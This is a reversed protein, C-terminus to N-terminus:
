ILNMKSYDWRENIFIIGTDNKNKKDYFSWNEKPIKWDKGYICELLGESYKPILVEGGYFKILTFESFYKAPIATKIYQAGLYESIKIMTLFLRKRVFLPFLRFLTILISKIIMNRSIKYNEERIFGSPYAVLFLGIWYFVRSLKPAYGEQAANEHPRVANNGNKWMCNINVIAGESKVSIAANSSYFYASYGLSNLEDVIMKFKKHIDSEFWCCLEADNNWPLLQNNRVMGLLAGYNLWCDVGKLKSIDMVKQIVIAMNATDSRVKFNSTNTIKNIKKKM